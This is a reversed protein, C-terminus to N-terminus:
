RSGRGLLLTKVTQFLVLLDLGVSLNKIYFLDYSLKEENDALTACYPRHIQAWGTAGPRVSWRWEYFPIKKAWEFEEEVMFPRPGVFSMDGLLINYLQPIEDLRSKRLLKGTWTFREDGEQAPRGKGSASDEVRMSRFKYLTFIKGNRGVRKQRFLIPRGTDILIALAILGLIPMSLVIMLFATAAYFIRTFFLLAKSPCFGKSFLLWSVRLSDLPMRGTISEYFDSAEEILVGQTKLNLLTEVPLKGRRDKMSVVIRRVGNEIVVRELDGVIGLQKLHKSEHTSQGADLYGVIKVGMQPRLEVAENLTDGYEGDGLIL